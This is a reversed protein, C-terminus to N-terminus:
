LLKTSGKRGTLVVLSKVDSAKLTQDKNTLVISKNKQNVYGVITEKSARAREALERVSIVSEEEQVMLEIHAQGSATMATGM